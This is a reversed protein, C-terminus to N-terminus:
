ASGPRYSQFLRKVSACRVNKELRKKDEFFKNQLTQLNNQIKTIEEAVAPDDVGGPQAPNKKLAELEQHATQFVHTWAEQNSEPFRGSALENYRAEAHQHIKDAIDAIKQGAGAGAYIADVATASAEGQQYMAHFSKHLASTNFALSPPPLHYGNSFHKSALSTALSDISEKITRFEQQPERPPLPLNDVHANAEKSIKRGRYDVGGDNPRVPDPRRGLLDAPDPQNAAPRPQSPPTNAM